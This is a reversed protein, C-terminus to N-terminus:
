KELICTEKKCEKEPCDHAEIDVYISDSDYRGGNEVNKIPLAEGCKECRVTVYVTSEVTVNVSAKVKDTPM